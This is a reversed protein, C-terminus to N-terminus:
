LSIRYTSINNYRDTVRIIIIDTESKTNMNFSFYETNSDFIRDRPLLYVWDTANVSYEISQIDSYEDIVKGSIQYENDSIKETKINQLSPASNDIIQLPTVLETKLADEATNSPIDSCVLKFYYSGDPIMMSDFVLFNEKINDKLLFWTTSQKSRFYVTYCLDDENPDTAEWALRKENRNLPQKFKAIRKPDMKEGTFEMNFSQIVPQQNNQRYSLKLSTVTPTMKQSDSGLILKYQFFRARPSPIATGSISIEESWKSWLPDPVSSNGSRTQVKVSTGTPIEAIWAISGFVANYTADFIDSYYNGAPTYVPDLLFINGLNGSGAYITRKKSCFLSLIQSSEIAGIKTVVENPDIKFIDGNNGCGVYINNDMDKTLSLFVVNELEIIKSYDLNKKIKYVVNVSKTKNQFSLSKDDDLRSSSAQMKGVQKPDTQKFLFPKDTGPSTTAYINEQDDVTLSTIEQGKTDFIVSKELSSTIKYILGNESGALFINDNKDIVFSVFNGENPKFITERKGTKDIKYLFAENGTAVFLNGKSDFKIDWIYSSDVTLYVESKKGDPSLKYIIGKPSIGAYINDDKDIALATVQSADSDFFVSANSGSIKYVIGKNGTGCFIENKSNEAICWVFTESIDKIQRFTPALTIIGQDNLSVGNMQGAVLQFYSNQEIYKTTVADASIGNLAFVIFFLKLINRM